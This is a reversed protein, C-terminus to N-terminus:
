STLMKEYKQRSLWWVAAWNALLIGIFDFTLDILDFTRTKLFLQSMEEIVVVVSVIITGRLIPMRGIQWGRFYRAGMALNVLLALMGILGLHGLKDGYPLWRAFRFFIHQREGSNALYLVYVIFTTFGGALLKYM